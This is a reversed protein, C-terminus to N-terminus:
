LIERLRLLPLIAALVVTGVMAALALIVAPELMSTLRDILRAGRRLDREGLRTLVSPVDGAHEGVELLRRFEESFWRDDGFADALSGGGRISEGASLLTRRLSPSSVTPAVVRIAEEFPVGCQTLQSLQLSLGGVWVRKLFSPTLRDLMADLQNRVAPDRGALLRPILMATLLAVGIGPVILVWARSLATGFGMVALTLGPPDVGADTLTGVLQPLTRTSLFIVVGIGIVAVVAPYSLAATIKQLIVSTREGQHALARMVQAIEGRAEGAKLIAIDIPGFWGPHRALAESLSGGSSLDTHLCALLRRRASRPQRESRTMAHVADLLPIGAELMTALGDLLDARQALRRRRLHRDLGLRSPTGHDGFARLSLAHLGARRLSARADAESAATIEGSRKAGEGPTGATTVATYRWTIM